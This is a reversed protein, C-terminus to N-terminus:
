EGHAPGPTSTAGAAGADPHRLYSDLQVVEERTLRGDELADGARALFEGMLQDQNPADGLRQFFRELDKLVHEREAATLDTPLREEIRQRAREVVWSAGRRLFFFTGVMVLILVVVLTGCGVTLWRACASGGAPPGPQLPVPPVQQPAATM